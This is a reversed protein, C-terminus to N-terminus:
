RPWIIEKRPCSEVPSGNQYDYQNPRESGFNLLPHSRVLRERQGYTEQKIVEDDIMYLYRNSTSICDWKNYDNNEGSTTYKNASTYVVKSTKTIM